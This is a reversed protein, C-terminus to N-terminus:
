RRNFGYVKCYFFCIAVTTLYEPKLFGRHILHLFQMILVTFMPAYLINKLSFIRTLYIIVGMAIFYIWYGEGYDIYLGGLIGPTLGGADVSGFIEAMSRGAGLSEGPLVTYIDAVFLPFENIDNVVGSSIILNTLGTTEKLGLYIPMILYIFINNYDFYHEIILDVSALTSGTTRRAYFGVALLLFSLSILGIWKAYSMRYLSLSFSIQSKKIDYILIYHSILAIIAVGRYSLLISPLIMAFIFKWNTKGYIGHCFAVLPLPSKVIYELYVPVNFRTEPNLFIVGYSIYIYLLAVYVVIIHAKLLNLFLLSPRIKEVAVYSNGSFFVQLFGLLFFSVIYHKVTTSDIYGRWISINLLAIAYYLFVLLWFIRMAGGSFAAFGILMLCIVVWLLVYNEVFFGFLLVPFFYLGANLKFSNISM